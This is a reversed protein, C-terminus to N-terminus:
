NEYLTKCKQRPSSESCKRGGGGIGYRPNCADAVVGAQKKQSLMEGVNKGTSAEFQLGEMEAEQTAPIVSM